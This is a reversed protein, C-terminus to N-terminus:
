ESASEASQNTVIGQTDSDKLCPRDEYEEVHVNLMKALERYRSSQSKAFVSGLELSLENFERIISEQEM